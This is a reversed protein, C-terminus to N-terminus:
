NENAPREVHDVMLMDVAAKQTELRLGMKELVDAFLLNPEIGANPKLAGPILASWDIAPMNYLSTLGTKDVLPRDLRGVRSAFKLLDAMSHCSGPDFFNTPRDACEGIAGGQLKPGNKGVVIAYVTDEKTENHVRVKFRDALLTRLMERIKDNRVKASSGNPIADKPAIAEIDYVDQELARVDLKQFEPSPYVRPVDFAEIVLLPIPVARASFRGGPLYQISLQGREGPKNVKISVVEFSLRSTQPQAPAQLQAAATIAIVAFISM